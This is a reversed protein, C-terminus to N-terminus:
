KHGKKKHHVKVQGKTTTHDSVYKILGHIKQVKKVTKHAKKLSHYEGVSIPPKAHRHLVKAGNNYRLHSAASKLIAFPRGKGPMGGDWMVIYGKPAKYYVHLFSDDLSVNKLNGPISPDNWPMQMGGGPGRPIGFGGTQGPQIQAGGPLAPLMGPSRGSSTGDFVGLAKGGEYVAAAGGALSLANGVIPIAGVFPIKRASSALSLAKGGLKALSRFLSM